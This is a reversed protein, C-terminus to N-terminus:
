MTEPASVGLLALGLTAYEFSVVSSVPEFGVVALAGVSAVLTALLAERAAHRLRRAPLLHALPVRTLFVLALLLQAAREPM